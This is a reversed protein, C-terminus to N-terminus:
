NCPANCTVTASYVGSWNGANDRFKVYVTRTGPSGASLIWAKPTVTGASACPYPSSAAFPEPNSWNTNDNSLTMQACCSPSDACTLTLTVTRSTTPSPSIAVSGTSPGATDAARPCYGTALTGHCRTCEGSAWYRYAVGWKVSSEGPSYPDGLRPAHCKVNSCTKTAPNYSAGALTFTDLPYSVAYCGPTTKYPLPAVTDFAIDPTGSVHTSHNDIPVNGLTAVWNARSWTNAVKATDNHCWKCSLPPFCRDGAGYYTANFNHGLEEGYDDIWSHTNGLGGDNRLGNLGAAWTSRPPNQHCGSCTLSAGGWVPAKYYRTVVLNIPESSYQCPQYPVIRFPASCAGSSCSTTYENYSHCSVNSCTKTGSDYSASPPNMAKLSGAPASANYLEVDVTGKNHKAPDMPHCNGCNFIYVTSYSNFDKTIKTDGYAADSVAGGFHIAHSGTAPYAGGAGGYHCGDCAGGEAKFGETHPHCSVCNTAASHIHDGSADNRHYTTQTHCVECVGNYTTDGDAFSGTGGQDFFKVSKSTGIDDIVIADKVYQGYIVAFTASSFLNNNCETTLNGNVTITKATPNVATIPYNYGLKNVHPFLIAGRYDETKKPLKTADWGTGSKYTISPNDSYRFTSIDKNTLPDKGSYECSLIKGTALYLNSADTNKYVKQRQYHPNHCDRCEALASGSSDSHTKVAPADTQSYPGGTSRRHCSLCLDDYTGTGWFPSTLVTEGHCSGCNINNSANHPADTAAIAISQFLIAVIFGIIIILAVKTKM